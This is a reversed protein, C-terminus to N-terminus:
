HFNGEILSSRFWKAGAKTAAVMLLKEKDSYEQYEESFKMKEFVVMNRTSSPYSKVVMKAEERTLNKRLIKRRESVRFIKVVKYKENEVSEM